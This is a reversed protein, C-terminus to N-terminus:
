YKYSLAINYAKIDDIEKLKYYYYSCKIILHLNMQYAYSVKYNYETTYGFNCSYYKDDLVLFRNDGLLFSIYADNRGELYGLKLKLSNYLKDKLVDISYYTPNLYFASDGLFKNLSLDFQYVKDSQYHSFAGGVKYDIKDDKYWNFKYITGKNNNNMINQCAIEIHEDLDIERKLSIFTEDQIFNDEYLNIKKLGVKFLLTEDESGSQYNIGNYIGDKNDIKLHGNYFQFEDAKLLLIFIFFFLKKM